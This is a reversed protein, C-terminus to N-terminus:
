KGQTRMGDIRRDIRMKSVIGGVIELGDSHDCRKRLNQDGIRLKRGVRDGFQGRHCLGFGAHKLKSRDAIALWTMQRAFVKFYAGSCVHQMEGRGDVAGGWEFLECLTHSTM